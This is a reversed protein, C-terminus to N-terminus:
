LAPPTCVLTYDRGSIVVLRYTGDSESLAAATFFTDPVDTLAISSALIVAGEIPNGQDDTVRGSITVVSNVPPVTFHLEAGAEARFRRSLLPFGLVGQAEEGLALSVFAIADYSGAPLRLMYQGDTAGTVIVAARTAQQDANAVAIQAQIPPQGDAGKITGTVTVLPPITLDVTTDGSITVVNLELNLLESQDDPLYPKLGLVSVVYQGVPMALTYDEALVTSAQLTGEPAAFQIAATEADLDGLDRVEGRVRVLPPPPPVLVDHVVDDDVTIPDGEPFTVALTSGTDEVLFLARVRLRYQGPPLVVRYRASQELPSFQIPGDFTVGEASRATISGGIILAHAESTVAGTLTVGSPLVCDVKQDATADIGTRQAPLLPMDDALIGPPMVLILVLGPIMVKQWGRWSGAARQVIM